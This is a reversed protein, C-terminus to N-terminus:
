RWPYNYFQRFSSWRHDGTINLNGGLALIGVMVQEPDSSLDIEGDIEITVTSGTTPGNNINLSGMMEVVLTGVSLYVDGGGVTPQITLTGEVVIKDYVTIDSGSYIVNQGM